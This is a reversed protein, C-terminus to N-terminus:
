DLFQQLFGKGPVNEVLAEVVDEVATEESSGSSSGMTDESSSDHSLKLRHANDAIWKSVEPTSAWDSLAERTSERTLDEWEMKSFKRTPTKHFSSYFDESVRRNITNTAPNKNPTSSMQGKSPSGSLVHHYSPSGWLPQGSGKGASRNLFEVNRNSGSSPQWTRQQWLPSKKIHSNQPTAPTSFEISTILSSLSWCACLAVVSLLADLSSQFLNLCFCDSM